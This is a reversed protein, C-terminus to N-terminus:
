QQADEKMYNGNAVEKATAYVVKTLQEHLTPNLTETKDGPLHLYTYSNQTAFYLTPIGAQHFAEADAGGGRWTRDIVMNNMLSDQERAIRYLKPYSKGSGIVISDGHAVCDMNLMSTIKEVPIEERDVFAQSGVLGSEESTFAIFVISRKAHELSFAEAVELLSAVGSANDNAGPFYFEESQRGVHDLHAGLIVYEDKLEPDTGPLIGVVNKCVAKPKYDAKVQIKMKKDLLVSAPTKNEDIATQLDALQKGSGEFLQEAISLDLHIQPIDQYQKGPGHMISGIPKQPNRDNPFSLYVVGKAGHEAAHQVKRRLSAPGWGEEDMKWRPDYKFMLVIKGEVDVNAYDDYGIDPRSLGYGVFAVEAEIDGSGSFGRCVYDSGLKLKKWEESPTEIATNCELIENFEIDVNQFYSTGSLPQLNYKKFKGAVFDAAKNYGETGPLRGSLEKSSLYSVTENLDSKSISELVKPPENCSHLISASCFAVILLPLQINKM